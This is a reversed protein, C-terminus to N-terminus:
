GGPEIRDIAYQRLRRYDVKGSAARGVSDILVIRREADPPGRFRRSSCAAM